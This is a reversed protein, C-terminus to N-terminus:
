CCTIRMDGHALVTGDSALATVEYILQAGAHVDTDHAEHGTGAYVDQDPGDGTHKWLRYHDLRPDDSATWTCTV